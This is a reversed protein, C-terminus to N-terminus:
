AAKAGGSKRKASYKRKKRFGGRKPASVGQLHTPLEQRATEVLCNLTGIMSTMFTTYSTQKHSIQGLVSEWQATLDPV